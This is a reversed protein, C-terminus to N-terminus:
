VEGGRGEYAMVNRAPVRGERENRACALAGDARGGGGRIGGCEKGSSM